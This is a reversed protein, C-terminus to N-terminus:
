KKKIKTKKTGEATFYCKFSHRYSSNMISNNGILFILGLLNLISIFSNETFFCFRGLNGGPSLKLTSLSSIRFININKMNRILYILNCKNDVIFAPISKTSNLFKYTKKGIKPKKLSRCFEQYGGVGKITLILEKTDWIMEVLQEIILPFNKIDSLIHGRSILLSPILASILSAQFAKIKSKRNMKIGWKKKTKNVGYTRGGRCINNIAGQGSIITGSGKIRPVRALARGPGWSKASYLTGYFKKVYKNKIMSNKKIIYYRKILHSYKLYNKNFQVKIGRKTSGDIGSIRFINYDSM